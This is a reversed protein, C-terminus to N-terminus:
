APPLPIYFLLLFVNLDVTVCNAYINENLDMIYILSATLQKTIYSQISSQQNAYVDLYAFYVYMYLASVSVASKM